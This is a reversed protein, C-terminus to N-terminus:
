DQLGPTETQFCILGGVLGSLGCLTALDFIYKAKKTNKRSIYELQAVTRYNM